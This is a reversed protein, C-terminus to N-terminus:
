APSLLGVRVVLMTSDDDDDLLLLLGRAAVLRCLASLDLVRGVISLSFPAEMSIGGDPAFPVLSDLSGM